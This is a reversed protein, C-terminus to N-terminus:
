EEAVSGVRSSMFAIVGSGDKVRPALKEAVVIPAIANTYFLDSVEAPTVRAASGQKPGSIGANVFLVDLETGALRDALAAVQAPDKIDVAELRVASPASAALDRLERARQLDRATATVQWGRSLYERALGLGLGRSAGVILIEKNM